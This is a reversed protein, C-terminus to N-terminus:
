MSYGVILLPTILLKIGICHLAIAIMEAMAPICQAPTHKTRPKMNLCIQALFFPVHIFISLIYYIFWVTIYIYKPYPLLPSMNSNLTFSTSNPPSSVLIATKRMKMTTM